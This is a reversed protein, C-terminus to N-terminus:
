GETKRLVNYLKEVMLVPLLRPLVRLFINKFLDFSSWFGMRWAAKQLEWEDKAYKWGQRRKIMENGARAKVVVEDLNAFVKKQLLMRMWLYYDEFGNMSLYGGAEEVASKRFVVTMHNVPNRYNAYRIIEDHTCPPRREKTCRKPNDNFECIWGGLVDVHPHEKLYAIQKEFRGSMAIDDSDMRAVWDYSCAQLGKNLAIGLGVNNELELINYPTGSSMNHKAIVKDLEHSLPGDKVLMIENASLTQCEISSLAEDLFLPNEKHYVSILVSFKM